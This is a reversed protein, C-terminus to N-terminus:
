EGNQQKLLNPGYFKLAKDLAIIMYGIDLRTHLNNEKLYETLIRAYSQTLYFMLWGYERVVQAIYFTDFEEEAIKKSKEIEAIKDQLLQVLVKAQLECADKRMRLDNLASSGIKENINGILDNILRGESLISIDIETILDKDTEFLQEPKNSRLTFRRL